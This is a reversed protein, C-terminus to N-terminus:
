PEDDKLPAEFDTFQPYPRQFLRVPLFPRVGIYSELRRIQEQRFLREEIKTVFNRVQRRSSSNWRAPERRSLKPRDDNLRKVLGDRVTKLTHDCFKHIEDMKMFSILKKSNIHTFGFSPKQVLTLQSMQNIGPFRILPKTLNIKEQYSEVGLQLDEVREQVILRRIFLLLSSIFNYQTDTDFGRM